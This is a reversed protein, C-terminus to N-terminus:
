AGTWTVLLLLSVPILIGNFTGSTGEGAEKRSWVGDGVGCDFENRSDKDAGVARDGGLSDGTLGSGSSEM